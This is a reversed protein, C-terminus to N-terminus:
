YNTDHGMYAVETSFSFDISSSDFVFQFFFVCIKIECEVYEICERM